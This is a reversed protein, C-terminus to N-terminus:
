MKEEHLMEKGLEREKGERCGAPQHRQRERERAEERGWDWGERGRERPAKASLKRKTRHGKFFQQDFEAAWGMISSLSPPFPLLSLLDSPTPHPPSRSSAPPLSPPPSSTLKLPPAPLFVPLPLSFIDLLCKMLWVPLMVVSYCCILSVDHYICDEGWSENQFWWKKERGQIWRLSWEGLLVGFCDHNVTLKILAAQRRRIGSHVAFLLRRDIRNVSRDIWRWQLSNPVM